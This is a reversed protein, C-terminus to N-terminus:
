LVTLQDGSPVDANINNGAESAAGLYVELITEIDTNNDTPYAIIVTETIKGDIAVSDDGNLEKFKIYLLHYNKTNDIFDEYTQNWGPNSFL